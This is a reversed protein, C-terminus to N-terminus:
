IVCRLSGPLIAAKEQLDKASAHLPLEIGCVVTWRDILENKIALPLAASVSPKSRAVLLPM